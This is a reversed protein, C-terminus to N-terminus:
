IEDMTKRREKKEAVSTIAIVALSACMLALWLGQKSSDGTNVATEATIKKTSETNNDINEAPADSVPPEGNNYKEAGTISGDASTMGEIHNETSREPDTEKRTENEQPTETAYEFQRESSPEYPKETVETVTKNLSSSDGSGRRRISTGPDDEKRGKNDSSGGNGSGGGTNDTANTRNEFGIKDPKEMSKNSAAVVAYKLTNDTNVTVFVTVTYVTDDYIVSSDSSPKEYVTYRYTGPESIDIKFAEEGNAPITIESEYPAPSNNKTEMIVSCKDTSKTSEFSVPVTATFAAYNADAFVSSSLCMLLIFVIISYIIKRM